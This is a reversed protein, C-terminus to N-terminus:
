KAFNVFKEITYHQPLNGVYVEHDNDPEPDDHQNIPKYMIQSNVTMIAYNMDVKLDAMANFRGLHRSSFIIIAFTREFVRRALLPITPSPFPCSSTPGSRVLARSWILRVLGQSVSSWRVSRMTHQGQCALRRSTQLPTTPQAAPSVTWWRTGDAGWPDKTVINDENIEIIGTTIAPRVRCYTCCFLLLLRLAM